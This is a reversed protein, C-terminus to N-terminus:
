LNYICKSLKLLDYSAQYGDLLRLHRLLCRITDMVHPRDINLHPKDRNFYPGDVIEQIRHITEQQLQIMNKNLRSYNM